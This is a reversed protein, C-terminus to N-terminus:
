EEAMKDAFKCYGTFLGQQLGTGYNIPVTGKKQKRIQQGQNM